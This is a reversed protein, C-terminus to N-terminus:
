GNSAGKITLTGKAKAISEAAGKSSGDAHIKFSHNCKGVLRFKKVKKIVNLAKLVEFTIESSPDIRKNDIMRDITALSVTAAKAPTYFSVQKPLRREIPTQGGQFNGLAVGTRATQGKGGHGPNHHKGRGVRKYKKSSGPKDSLKNLVLM